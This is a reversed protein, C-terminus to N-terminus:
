QNANSREGRQSRIGENARDCLEHIRQVQKATPKFEDSLHLERVAKVKALTDAEALAVTCAAVPDVDETTPPDPEAPEKDGNGAVTQPMLDQLTKAPAALRGEIVPAVDELEEKSQMGMLVEPCTLRILFMAARYQLMLDPLTKWKSGSKKTWGEAEAMAMTVTQECLEGSEADTASATCQRRDGEGDLTFHIRGRFADSNNALAIALKSELGPRGHVVYCGQLFMFPDCGCRIAMGVGVACNGPKGRFHDPVMESGAYMKALRWLGNLTRAHVAGAEFTVDAGAQLEAKVRETEALAMDLAKEPDTQFVERVGLQEPPLSATAM